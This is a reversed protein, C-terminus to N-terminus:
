AEYDAEYSFVQGASLLFLLCETVPLGTASEIARKYVRMQLAYRRAIELFGGEAPVKDSKYDVLALTGDPRAFYCDVIGHVLVTKQSYDRGYLESAPWGLVFPTERRVLPSERIRGALPSQLFRLIHGAPVSAAEERTLIGQSALEAIFAALAGEEQCRHFDLRELVTHAAAGRRLPAVLELGLAPPRPRTDAYPMDGQPDLWERQFLRKIESISIKKPTTTDL